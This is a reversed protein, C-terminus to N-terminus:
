DAALYDKWLSDLDKGCSDKFLEDSYKGSRMAANLKKVIEKDHKEALWAFFSATTRYSDKWSGKRKEKPTIAKKEYQFYRIYDAVGDTVWSPGGGKYSQVVHVLEHVIMGTDEPHKKVWDAAVRIRNGSTDAVGKKDKEFTISLEKPPTFGPTALYESMKPYWEECLAKAKDAWDQLEPVQSADVTIKVQAALFALLLTTM